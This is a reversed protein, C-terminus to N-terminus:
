VDRRRRSTFYLYVVTLVLLFLLLLVSMASGLGFNWTIFSSSYIHVSIIDAPQPASGGFLVYPTNFDNFTWLVLVLILVQNVPRLLPLTIARVQRIFSAGDIAAAEYLDDPITQLGAMICLLAFPWTRWVAVMVLSWFSNDGILWFPRDDTLHLQDVIVHNLLGNDRQLLFSWTIVAAYAPLAYPTLFLTRLVNRGPFPRQLLIGAVTGLLWSLGVALVTYATTVWLSHLLDGGIPGSWDLVVRYNGLGKDPAASWNRIYFQTLGKLSMWVGVVMPILHVLLEMVLAPLLFVYPTLRRRGVRAARRPPPVPETRPPTALTVTAM